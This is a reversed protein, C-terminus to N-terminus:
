NKRRFIAIALVIQSIALLRIANALAPEGADPASDTFMPGLAQGILDVVIMAGDLAPLLAHM